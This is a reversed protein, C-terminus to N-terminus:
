ALHRALIPGAFNAFPLPLKKWTESVLKFKPNNPNVDPVADAKILAYQYALPEPEFGWLKKYDFHPTGVKSRGFDFVPAGRSAAQEMIRWYLFDFAKLPRAAGIAGVYYPMVCDRFYFSLLAAIPKGDGEVIAIEAKDSFEAMVASVFKKSFVPTGLGRLSQAYIGHFVDVDRGFSITLRGEEYLKLAKRVEARRKRPIEKLRTEEDQPLTKCFGAYTSDKTPWEALKAERGRLEVYQVNRAQGAAIAAEALAEIAAPDSSGIGGGVTFATSILSRGFIPSKVDVLPCVGVVAGDRRAILRITKYGYAKEVVNGWGWHHFFSAAGSQEVFQMWAVEDSPLAEEVIMSSNSASSSGAEFSPKNCVAMESDAELIKPPVVNGM